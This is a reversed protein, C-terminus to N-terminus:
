DDWGEDHTVAALILCCAAVAAFLGVQWPVFVAATICGAAGALLKM